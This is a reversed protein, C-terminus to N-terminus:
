EREVLTRGPGLEPCGGRGTKNGNKRLSDTHTLIHTYLERYKMECPKSVFPLMSEYQEASQKALIKSITGYSFM